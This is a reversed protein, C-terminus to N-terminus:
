PLSFCPNDCDGFFDVAAILAQWVDTIIGVVHDNIARSLLRLDETARFFLFQSFADTKDQCLKRTAQLSNWTKVFHLESLELM